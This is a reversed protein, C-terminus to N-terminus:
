CGHAYSADDIPTATYGGNQQEALAKATAEDPAKIAVTFCPTVSSNANEMRFYFWQGPMTPNPNQPPVMTPPAECPIPPMGLEVIACTNKNLGMEDQALWKKIEFQYESLGSDWDGVVHVRELYWGPYQGSNDHYIMIKTLNGVHVPSDVEFKDWKAKEFNDESNDLYLPETEGLTGYLVIWVDADTGAHDVNGTVTTITYHAM